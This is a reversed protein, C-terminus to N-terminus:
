KRIRSPVVLNTIVLDGHTPTDACVVLQERRGHGGPHYAVKDSLLPARLITSFQTTIINGHKVSSKYNLSFVYRGNEQDLSIEFNQPTVGFEVHQPDQRLLQFFRFYWETNTYNRRYTQGLRILSALDLLTEGVFDSM